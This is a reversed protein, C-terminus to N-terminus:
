FRDKKTQAFESKTKYNFDAQELMWDIYIGYGKTPDNVFVHTVAGILKGDQIIPSGSMGQVIGGTKQLLKKDTIRIIMSKQEPFPQNQAKVIEIEYKQVKNDNITTLIYAKGEKVEEQFGVPLPKSKNNDLNKKYLKGYIGFETNSTIDGLADQTEYFAGKIEGPSGKSGQEIESIRASMIKGNEIKLLEGTDIDTIGHGLAGFIGTNEDYFTLTGIGATKDRVWIGLRYCNDQVSKRPRVQTTFQANNREIVIDITEKKISNLLEVVHEADKVKEGDIELISDGVKIGGDKAPNYRKGDVGIVDTVAVVLVGRTNLRVGISNGGPTLYVRELVNVEIDRVPIIGLLKLQMKAIGSQITNFEYSKKLSLTNKSCPGCNVINNDQLIKVTFPFFVDFAKKDGKVINIRDPYYNFFCFQFLYFAIVIMLIISLQQKYRSYKQM